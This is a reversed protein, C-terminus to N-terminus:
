CYRPKAKKQSERAVEVVLERFWTHGPDADSRSHWVLFEGIAPIDFPPKITKVYKRLHDNILLAPVVAVCDSNMVCTIALEFSPVSLTPRPRLSQHDLTSEVFSSLIRALRTEIYPLSCFEEYTLQETVQDNDIAAILVWEDSFAHTYSFEEISSSPNILKTQQFTIACDINGTEVRSLTESSIEEMICSIGPYSNAIKEVLGAMLVEAAYSSMAIRFTRETVTPDFEAGSLITSEIQILLEKVPKVMAQARPTLVFERGVKELIEDGTHQRLKALAASVAPQSVHVREAAKTVSQEELLADLIVILNLDLGKFHM